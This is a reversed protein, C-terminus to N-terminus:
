QVGLAPIVRLDLRAHVHEMLKTVLTKKVTYAPRTASIVLSALSAHMAIFPMMVDLVIKM